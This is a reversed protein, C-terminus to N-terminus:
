IGQLYYMGFPNYFLEHSDYMTCEHEFIKYVPAGQEPSFTQGHKIVPKEIIQYLSFTQPSVIDVEQVTLYM